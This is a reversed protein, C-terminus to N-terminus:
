PLRFYALSSRSHTASASRYRSRASLSATLFNKASSNHSSGLSASNFFNPIRGTAVVMDDPLIPMFSHAFKQRHDPVLDPLLRLDGAGASKEERKLQIWFQGRVPACLAGTLDVRM